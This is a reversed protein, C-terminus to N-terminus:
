WVLKDAVLNGQKGDYKIATQIFIPAGAKKFTSDSTDQRPTRATGVSGYFIIQLKHTGEVLTGHYIPQTGGFAFITREVDTYNHTSKLNDDIKVELKELTYTGETYNKLYIFIENDAPFKIDKKLQELERDYQIIRENIQGFEQEFKKTQRELEEQDKEVGFSNAQGFIIFVFAFFLIVLKQSQM